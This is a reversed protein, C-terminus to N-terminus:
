SIIVRSCYIDFNNSPRNFRINTDTLLNRSLNLQHLFKHGPHLSHKLVSNSLTYISPARQARASRGAEQSNTCHSSGGLAM